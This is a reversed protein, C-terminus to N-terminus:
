NPSNQYNLYYNSVLEILWTKAATYLNRYFPPNESLWFSYVSKKELEILVPVSLLRNQYFMQILSSIGWTMVIYKSFQLVLLFSYQVHNANTKSRSSECPRLWIYGRYNLVRVRCYTHRIWYDCHYWHATRSNAWLSNKGMFSQM